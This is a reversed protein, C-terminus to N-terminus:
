ITASSFCNFPKGLPQISTISHFSIFMTKFSALVFVFCKDYPQHSEYAFVKAMHELLPALHAHADYIPHRITPTTAQILHWGVEHHSSSPIPYLM